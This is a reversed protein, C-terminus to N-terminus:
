DAARWLQQWRGWIPTRGATGGEAWEVCRLMRVQRSHGLIEVRGPTRSSANRASTPRETLACQWFPRLGAAARTPAWKVRNM